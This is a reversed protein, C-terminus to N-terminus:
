RRSRCMYIQQNSADNFQAGQWDGYLSLVEFGNYHLLARIEQPYFYRLLLEKRWVEANEGARQPRYLLRQLWLQRLHDYHDTGSVRITRGDEDTFTYWEEAAESDQMRGPHKFDADVIFQGGPALHEQVRALMAEQGERTLLHQLVHGYTYILSFRAPMHFSRVDARVWSVPLGTSKRRALDLMGAEIDLGTMEIGQRALAIAVRGTGCGLELVPGSARAAQTLLITGQAEFDGSELDYQIPNSYM